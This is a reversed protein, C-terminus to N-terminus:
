LKCNVTIVSRISDFTVKLLEDLEQLTVSLPPMLVIVDGLPRLIVGRKRAEMIVKIGTKNSMPFPEKSDRNSVLEIGVMFGKQRVDGVNKLDWFRKLGKELFEIKKQLEIITRDKEFVDLSAL